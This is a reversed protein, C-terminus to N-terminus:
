ENKRDIFYFHKESIPKGNNLLGETVILVKGNDDSNFFELKFQGTSDPIITPNWYLTARKDIVPHVLDTNDYDPSYFERASSYGEITKSLLGFTPTEVYVVEGRKTYIAIVGNGGKMGFVATNSADKLVEIKDIVVMPITRAMNVDIEMGDLLILPPGSSMRISINDGSIYLGPVMGILFSFIDSYGSEPYDDMDVVSNAHSYLRFHGDDEEKKKAVVTVEDLLVHDKGFNRYQDAMFRHYALENFYRLSSTDIHNNETVPFIAPATIQYTFDMLRTNQKNKKNKSQVVVKTSDFLVVNNFRFNGNVDSSTEAIIAESPAFLLINGEELGKNLVLRQAKGQIHLGAEVKYGGQSIKSIHNDDWIYKSWGQTLLLLDMKEKIADYNTNFYQGPYEIEGKLESNLEFWSVISEDPIESIGAQELHIVSLSLNGGAKIDAENELGLTIQTKSRTNYTSQDTQINIKAQRFGPIYFLREAVPQLNKDILIAKNIGPQFNNTHINLYVESTQVRKEIYFTLEGKAIIALYYSLDENSANDHIKFRVVSNEIGTYQLSAKQYSAPLYFTDNPFIDSVVYYKMGQQPNFVTNGMGYHSAEIERILTGDSDFISGKFNVGKGNTGVYKFALNNPLNSSLYGGEPMFKLIGNRKVAEQNVPRPKPIKDAIPVQAGMELRSITIDKKFFADIGIEKMYSTYAYLQYTGTDLSDPITFDGFGIGNMILFPKHYYLEGSNNTLNVYVTNVGPIPIHFKADALYITFWISEKGYYINRDTHLYIKEQIIGELRKNYKEFFTSQASVTLNFFIFLSLFSYFISTM